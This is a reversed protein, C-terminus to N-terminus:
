AASHRRVADPPPVPRHRLRAGRRGPRRCRAGSLGHHRDAEADGPRHDPRQRRAAGVLRGQGRRFPDAHAPQRRARAAGFVALDRRARARRRQSDAASGEDSRRVASQVGRPEPRDTRPASRARGGGLRPRSSYEDFYAASTAALVAAEADVEARRENRTRNSSWAAGIVIPLLLVGAFVLVQRRISQTGLIKLPALFGPAPGKDDGINTPM